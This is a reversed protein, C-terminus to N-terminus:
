DHKLGYRLDRVSDLGLEQGICKPVWLDRHFPDRTEEMNRFLRAYMERKVDAANPDDIRNVLEHPDTELDYLEDIDACNFVLKHRETVVMRQSYLGWQMGHFEAYADTRWDDPLDGALLPVLSRAELHGPVPLAALELFTPMLDHNSAFNRCVSNEPWCHKPSRALLPIHYLEEYMCYGKDFMRRSGCTDGHDTSVFVATNAGLGLAELESLIRGILHDLFTVFGWYRAVVPQWWTWPLDQTHWREVMRRHLWPKGTLSDEFEPPQPVARPDYMSAYPEPINFPLHPGPLDCRLFFPQEADAYTRLLRRAEECRWWERHSEPPGDYVGAFEPWVHDPPAIKDIVEAESLGHDHLYEYYSGHCDHFGYRAPHDNHRALHVKGVYGTRYGADQLHHAFTRLSPDLREQTQYDHTNTLLGHTHPYLGTMISARAPSCLGCCTYARSFDVGEVAIRDLAPTRCTAHGHCGLVDYRLQDLFILLINPRDTM